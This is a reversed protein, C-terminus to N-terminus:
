RRGFAVRLALAMIALATIVMAATLLASAWGPAGVARGMDPAKKGILLAGQAAAVMLIAQMYRERDGTRPPPGDSSYSAPLSKADRTDDREYMAVAM